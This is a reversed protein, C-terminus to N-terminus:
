SPAISWLSNINAALPSSVERQDTGTPKKGGADGSAESAPSDTRVVPTIVCRHPPFQLDRAILALLHHQNHGSVNRRGERCAVDSSVHQFANPHVHVILRGVPPCYQLAACRGFRRM